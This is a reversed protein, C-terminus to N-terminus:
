GMFYKANSGFSRICSMYEFDQKREDLEVSFRALEEPTSIKSDGYMLAKEISSVFSLRKVKEVKM